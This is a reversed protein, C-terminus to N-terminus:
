GGSKGGKGDKKQRRRLLGKFGVTMKTRQLRPLRITRNVEFRRKEKVDMPRRRSIGLGRRKIPDSVANKGWIGGRVSGDLRSLVNAGGSTKRKRQVPLALKELASLDWHLSGEDHTSQNYSKFSMGEKRRGVLAKWRETKHREFDKPEQMGGAPSRTRM